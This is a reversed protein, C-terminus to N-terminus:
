NGQILIMGGDVIRNMIAGNFRDICYALTPQYSPQNTLM